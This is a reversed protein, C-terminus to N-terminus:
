NEAWVKVIEIVTKVAAEMDQISIYEQKGHYNQMGTFLNPCPLGKYTLMAGDTGGRIPVILPEIDIRKMAEIAYDVVRMDKKIIEFMNRYQEKAEISTTSGPFKDTAKSALTHIMSLLDKLKQEDFERVYLQVWSEECSMQSEIPYIFGKKEDTHEPSDADPLLSIFYSAVKLSNVMVDKAYGPHIAKGKFTVKASFAYFNEYQIEGKDSGDLTYAFDANFKEIDFFETGRGVEEDPNFAIKIDGHEIEPHKILYEMADMIIAVGSKDDAGLLTTGDTTIIDNGTQTTLYPTQSVEIVQQPDGPLVIDEGQYNEHITAKINAGSVEDSTDVHAFFGLTPIKKTSNSKLTATVYGHKDMQVNLMGIHELENKLEKLLALQKETSPYTTSNPDSQTDFTIYKLFKKAVTSNM